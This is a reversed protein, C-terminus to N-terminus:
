TVCFWDSIAYSHSFFKRWYVHQQHWYDFSLCLSFNSYVETRKLKRKLKMRTRVLHHPQQLALLQQLKAIRPLLLFFLLAILSHLYLFSIGKLYSCVLKLKPQQSFLILSVLFFQQYARLLSCFFHLFM